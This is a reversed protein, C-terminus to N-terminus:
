TYIEENQIVSFLNNPGGYETHQSQKQKSAGSSSTILGPKILDM